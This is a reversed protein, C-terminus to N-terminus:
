PASRFRWARGVRPLLRGTRPARRPGVGVAASREPRAAGCGRAFGRSPTRATRSRLPNSLRRGVSLGEFGEAPAGVFVIVGMSCARRKICGIAHFPSERFEAYLM